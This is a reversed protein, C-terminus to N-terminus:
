HFYKIIKAKRIDNYDIIKMEYLNKCNIKFGIKTEISNLRNEDITTFFIGDRDKVLRILWDKLRRDDLNSMFLEYSASEYKKELLHICYEDLEKCIHPTFSYRGYYYFSKHPKFKVKRNCYPCIVNFIKKSSPRIDELKFEGNHKYDWYKEIEKWKGLISQEKKQERLNELTKLKLKNFNFDQLKMIDKDYTNNIFDIIANIANDINDYIRNYNYFYYDCDIKELGVERVRFVTINHERALKNKDSDDIQKWKNIHWHFGDYEIALNLEPIFLDFESNLTLWDFQKGRITTPFIEKIYTYIYQEPRSTKLLKCLYSIENELNDINKEKM